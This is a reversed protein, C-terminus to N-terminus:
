TRFAVNVFTQSITHCFSTEVASVMNVAMQNWDQVSHEQFLILPQYNIFSLTATQSIFIINVEALFACRVVHSQCIPLM